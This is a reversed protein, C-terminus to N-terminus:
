QQARPLKAIAAKQAAVHADAIRKGLTTAYEAVTPRAHPRAAMRSSGFELSPGQELNTGVEVYGAGMRWSWSNRYQGTDPAPPEGPASARHDGRGRRGKYLRGSGPRSLTQKIQGTLELGVQPLSLNTSAIGAQVVKALNATAQALVQENVKQ